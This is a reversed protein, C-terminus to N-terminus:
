IPFNQALKATSSCLDLFKSGDVLDVAPAWVLEVDTFHDIPTHLFEYEMLASATSNRHHFTALTPRVFLIQRRKNLSRVLQADCIVSRYGFGAPSLCNFPFSPCWRIM